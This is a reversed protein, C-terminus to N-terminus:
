TAVARAAAIEAGGKAIERGGKALEGGLRVAGRTELGVHEAGHAIQVLSDKVNKFFDFVAHGIHLLAESVIVVLLVIKLGKAVSEKTEKNEPSNFEKYSLVKDASKSVVKKGGALALYAAYQIPAPFVVKEIFWEEVKELKEALSELFHEVKKLGLMASIKAAGELAFVLLSCTTVVTKSL